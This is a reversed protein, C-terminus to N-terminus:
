RKRVEETLAPYKDPYRLIYSDWLEAKHHPDQSDRVVGSSLTTSVGCRWHVTITRDDAKGRLDSPMEALQTATYTHQGFTISAVADDLWWYHIEKMEPYEEKLRLFKKAEAERRKQKLGAVRKVEEMDVTNYASLIAKEAPIAMIAFKRCAGEGECCFHTDVNQIDLRRRRLRHGCYPCRLYEGFPYQGAEPKAKKKLEFIRSCREFQKRSIIPEHHNKIYRSPVAGDNRFIRYTLFDKKYYKQITFDGAYKENQIMYHLRSEDWVTNGAPTPYGRKELEKAIKPVSVGHEYLDFLLRVAEAEEPVIEYNTGEKNKRYGYVPVLLEKGQQARKRKAWKVNESHSHSEEQAFAALVTLLMESCAEGTDIGEKDFRIHVGLEKLKRIYNICEMTNRSFRSISKTLIYDIKGDECAALMAQFEKRNAAKTGSFGEDAFIGAFEWDPNNKIELEYVIKQERVSTAQEESPTSVRCYAAVRLKKTVTEQAQQKKLLIKKITAM